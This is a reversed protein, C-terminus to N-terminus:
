KILLKELRSLREGLKINQRKMDENSKKLIEMQDLKLEQNKLKKEQEITYLTLEEIKQLLKNTMESVNLDNERFEEASPIEPLHKHKQIYANVEELPRLKYDKEFVWDAADNLQVKIEKAWISGNVSLKNKPTTIGIGINGVKDIFMSKVKITGSQSDILIHGSATKLSTGGYESSFNLSGYATDFNFGSYPSNFDIGSHESNIVVKGGYMTSLKINGTNANIDINGSLANYEDNGSHIKVNGPGEQILEVRAPLIHGNTQTTIAVKEGALFLNGKNANIDITGARGAFPHIGSKININGPGKVDLEILGPILGSDKIGSKIQWNYGNNTPRSSAQSYLYDTKTWIIVLFISTILTKSYNM